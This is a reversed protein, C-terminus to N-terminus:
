MIEKDANWNSGDWTKNFKEKMVFALWLQEMSGNPLENGPTNCIFYLFSKMMTFLETRTTDNSYNIGDGRFIFKSLVMEQLQDQRPLWVFYKNNKFLSDIDSSLLYEIGIKNHEIDGVYTYADTIKYEWLQQVEVTKECM